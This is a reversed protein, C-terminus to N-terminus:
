SSNVNNTIAFKIRKQKLFDNTIKTKQTNTSPNIQFLKKKPRKMNPNTSIESAFLKNGSKKKEPNLNLDTKSEKLLYYKEVFEEEEFRECPEKKNFFHNFCSQFSILPEEYAEHYEEEVCSHYLDFVPFFMILSGKRKRKSKHEYKEELTKEIENLIDDEDELYHKHFDKKHTKKFSSSSTNESLSDM